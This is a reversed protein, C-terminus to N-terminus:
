GSRLAVSDFPRGEVSEPCASSIVGIAFDRQLVLYRDSENLSCIYAREYDTMGLPVCRQPVRPFLNRRFGRGVTILSFGWDALPLIPTCKGGVSFRGGVMEPLRGRGYVEGDYDPHRVVEVRARPAEEFSASSSLCVVSSIQRCYRPTSRSYSLNSVREKGLYL